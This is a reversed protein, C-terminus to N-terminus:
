EEEAHGHQEVEKIKKEPVKMWEERIEKNNKCLTVYEWDEDASCM